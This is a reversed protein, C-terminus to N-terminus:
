CVAPCAWALVHSCLVLVLLVCVCMCVQLAAARLAAAATSGGAAAEPAHPLSSTAAAKVGATSTGQGRGKLLATDLAKVSRLGVCLRGCHQGTSTEIDLTRWAVSSSDMSSGTGSLLAEKLPLRAVGAAEAEGGHTVFLELNLFATSLHQLLFSDEEVVYQVTTNYRPTTGPVIPTAQSDHMFFDFAVFTAAGVPILSPQARPM